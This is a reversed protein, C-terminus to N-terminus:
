ESPPTYTEGDYTGGIDMGIDDAYLEHGEPPEWITGRTFVIRNVIVHDDVRVLVATITEGDDSSM